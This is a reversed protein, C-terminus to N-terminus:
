SCQVPERTALDAYLRRLRAATMSWSYTAALEQAGRGLRAAVAPDDLIRRVPEVFNAADCCGALYGSRDDAVVHRLGGVASAVVPTGCSAAELAVLGFSETRSPVVCVDAARYYQALAEHSQPPVFRVQAAVDLEGVLAALRRMEREGDIGSPGGVLLLTVQPDKLAAVVSVAVDAGKLPQIRGAFLMTKRGVVGLAAKAEARGRAHFITHDVGPALVEIRNPDAGYLGILQEREDYTNALMLDSCRTTDSEILERELDEELGVATKVLSLTHFNTILPVDLEHKLGHAVAGSV